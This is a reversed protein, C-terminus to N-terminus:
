SCYGERMRRANIFAESKHRLMFHAPVVLSSAISNRNIRGPAEMKFIEGYKEYCERWFLTLRNSNRRFELLNRLIPLPKPGPIASLPKLHEHQAERTAAATSTPHSLQLLSASRNNFSLLTSRCCVSPNLVRRTM